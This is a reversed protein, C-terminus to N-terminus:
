QGLGADERLVYDCSNRFDCLYSCFFQDQTPPWETTSEITAVQKRAWEIAEEYDAENFSLRLTTGGRFMNFILEKPFKGYKSKVYKSYLFLQRGYKRKDAKTKIEKKSKHDVIIIDGNEDELILDIFGKLKFDGFDVVFEEEVGLIKANSVLYDFGDFNEFYAYGGNYYSERLDAFNNPPFDVTVSVDFEEIYKDLLEYEALKGNAYDELIEHVFGGYEAFANPEQPPRQEPPLVYNM